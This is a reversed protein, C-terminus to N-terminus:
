NNVIKFVVPLAFWVPVPVGGQKGPRFRQLTKVVRIAEEDLSPDISRIIEIRDVSGDANVVFKLIVKGEINNNRADSPYMINEGVYKLLANNGGPYEPMEEVVIFPDKKTPVFVENNDPIPEIQTVGGNTTGETIVETIPIFPTSQSTDDVVVPELNKISNILEPPPKLEPPIVPDPIIPNSIEIIVGGPLNSATGNEPRFSLATMLLASFAIGGLVSLSATSNYRKRLDFAGYRKNRNEFIIEDFEPIKENKRKM